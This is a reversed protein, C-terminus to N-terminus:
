DATLPNVEWAVLRDATDDASLVLSNFGEGRFVWAPRAVAELGDGHETAFVALTLEAEDYTAPEGDPVEDAGHHTYRRWAEEAPVLDVPTANTLSCPRITLGRLDGSQSVEALGAADGGVPLPGADTHVVPTVRVWIAGSRSLHQETEFRWERADLGLASVADAVISEARGIVGRTAVQGPEHDARSGDSTMFEVLAPRTGAGATVVLRRSPDDGDGAASTYEVRDGTETRVVGATFGFTSRLVEGTLTPSVQDATFRPLGAPPAEPFPGTFRVSDDGLIRHNGDAARFGLWGGVALLPVGIAVAVGRAVNARRLTRAPPSSKNM